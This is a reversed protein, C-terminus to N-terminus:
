RRHHRPTVTARGPGSTLRCGSRQYGRGTRLCEGSRPTWSTNDVTALYDPHFREDRPIDSIRHYGTM